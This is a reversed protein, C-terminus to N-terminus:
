AETWTERGFEHVSCRAGTVADKTYPQQQNEQAQESSRPMGFGPETEQTLEGSSNTPQAFAPRPGYVLIACVLLSWSLFRFAGTIRYISMIKLVGISSLHM